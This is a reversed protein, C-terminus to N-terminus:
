DRGPMVVPRALHLLENRSGCVECTYVVVSGNQRALLVHRGDPKFAAGTIPGNGRYIVGISLGSEAGWLRAVGDQGGTVVVTGSPSFAASSVGGGHGRLVITSQADDRWRIIRATGDFGV